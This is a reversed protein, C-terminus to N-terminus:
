PSKWDCFISKPSFFHSVQILAFLERVTLIHEHASERNPIPAPKEEKEKEEVYKQEIAALKALSAARESYRKESL